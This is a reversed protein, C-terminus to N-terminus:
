RAADSVLHKRLAAREESHFPVTIWHKRAYNKMQEESEDSSIYVLSIPRRQRSTLKTGGSTEPPLLIEEFKDDLLKTIPATMPCWSAGFFLLVIDSHDLAYQISPYESLPLKQEDLTQWYQNGVRLSGAVVDQELEETAKSGYVVTKLIAATVVFIALVAVARGVTSVSISGIAGDVPASQNKM